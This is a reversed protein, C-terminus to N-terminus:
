AGGGSKRAGGERRKWVLEYLAVLLLVVFALRLVNYGVLVIMWVVDEATGRAGEHWNEVLRFVPYLLLVGLFLGFVQRVRRPPGSFRWWKQLRRSGLEFMRSMM